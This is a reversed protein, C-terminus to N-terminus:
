WRLLSLEGQWPWDEARQVLAKRVPNQRVYEWKEDYHVRSRMQTDWLDGQWHWEHPGYHRTICRKLYSAWPKIGTISTSLPQCFLHVHDPMIVYRGVSWVDADRCALVFAERFHADALSPTRPQLAITVFLILPTDHREVPPM